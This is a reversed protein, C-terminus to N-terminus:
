KLVFQFPAVPLGSTKSWVHHEPYAFCNYRVAKVGLKPDVKIRFAEGDITAEASVDKGNALTVVVGKVDKEEALVPEKEIARTGNALGGKAHKFSIVVASKDDSLTAKEAVPSRGENPLKKGYLDNLALRSLREAVDLKNKPHLENDDSTDTTVAMGTFPLDLSEAQLLRIASYRRMQFDGPKNKEGFNPLQVFYFPMDAGFRKRWSQILARQKLGYKADSENSEGQYWIVGKFPFTELPAMMRNYLSAHGGVPRPLMPVAPYPFSNTALKDFGAAWDSIEQLVKDLKARGEKKAFDYEKAAAAEEELGGVGDYGDLPIWPEIRSGGLALSIIAMPVDPCAKSLILGYIYGVASVQEVGRNEGGMKTWKKYMCEDGELSIESSPFFSGERRLNIGRFNPANTMADAKFEDQHYCGGWRINMHMNSQGSCVWVDGVLVNKFTVTREQGQGGGKVQLCKGERCAKRPALKALWRGYADTTAKVTEGDFSVEVTEGPAGSGTVQIPKDRQLMMDDTYITSVTFAQAGLACAVGAIAIVNKM